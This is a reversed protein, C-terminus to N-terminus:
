EITFNAAILSKVHTDIDISKTKEQTVKPPDVVVPQNKM